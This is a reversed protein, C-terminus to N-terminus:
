RSTAPSRAAIMAPGADGELLEIEPKHGSQVIKIAYYSTTGAARPLDFVNEVSSLKPGLGEFVIRGVGQQPRRDWCLFEGEDIVGIEDEGDFVRVNRISGALTDARAVYVRCRDDPVSAEAAPMPVRQHGAGACASLLLAIPALRAAITM